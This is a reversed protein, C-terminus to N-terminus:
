LRLWLSLLPGHVGVNEACRAMKHKPFHRGFYFYQQEGLTLCKPGWIKRGGGINPQSRWQDFSFACNKYIGQFKVSLHMARISSIFRFESTAAPFRLSRHGQFKVVHIVEGCAPVFSIVEPAPGETSHSFALVLLETGHRYFAEERCSRVVRDFSRMLPLNPTFTM